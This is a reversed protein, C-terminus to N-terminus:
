DVVEGFGVVYNDGYEKACKPCTTYFFYQRGQRHGSVEVKDALQDSWDPMDRFSGEFVRTLFDGSLRVTDYGSVPKTVAFLHEAKWSSLERNLTIPSEPDAANNAEIDALVKAFVKGMNVPVHMVSRTEARLFLKDKLHIDQGDWGEPKFRPCCNTPNDTMDWVPLENTQM